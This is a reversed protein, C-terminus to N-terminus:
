WARRSDASGGVTGKASRALHFTRAATAERLASSSLHRGPGHQGGTIAMAAVMLLVIVVVAILFVKVWRPLGAGPTAEAPGMGGTHRVDNM